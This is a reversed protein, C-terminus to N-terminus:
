SVAPLKERGNEKESELSMLFAAALTIIASILRYREFGGPQPRHTYHPYKLL